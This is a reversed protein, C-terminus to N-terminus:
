ILLIMEYQSVIKPIGQKEIFMRTAHQNSEINIAKLIEAKNKKKLESLLFSGIGKRRESQTVSLVPVDGTRPEIIGFGILKNNKFVGSVAFDNPTKLLAQFNNQWSLTFDSMVEMEPQYSFDIEQSYYGDPLQNEEKKWESMNVRFCDFKRSIRFGQREYVGFATKNEELVELIYQKIGAATLFPISYNFIGSALGKGRHEPITGTGTDYATKLDGCYGVGNLTFSVLESNHFAGFSLSPDFGRRHIAKQLDERSWQFPYDKFASLNCAFIEDFSTTGLSTIKYSSTM